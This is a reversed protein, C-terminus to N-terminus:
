KSRYLLILPVAYAVAASVQICSGFIIKVGMSHMGKTKPKIKMKFYPNITLRFITQIGLFTVSQSVTTKYFSYLMECCMTLNLGSILLWPSRFVVQDCSSYVCLTILCQFHNKYQLSIM